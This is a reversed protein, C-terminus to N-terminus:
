RGTATGIALQAGNAGLSVQLNSGNISRIPGPTITIVVAENVIRGSSPGTMAVSGGYQQSDVGNVTLWWTSESYGNDGTNNGSFQNLGGGNLRIHLVVNPVNNCFAGCVGLSTLWGSFTIPNLARLGVDIVQPLGNQYTGTPSGYIGGPGGLGNAGLCAPNNFNQPQQCNVPSSGGGGGSCAVMVISVVALLAASMVIKLNKM